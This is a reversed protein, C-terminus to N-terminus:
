SKDGHVFSAGSIHIYESSLIVSCQVPNINTSSMHHTGTKSQTVLHVKLSFGLLWKLLPFIDIMILNDELSQM